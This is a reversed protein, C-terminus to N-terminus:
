QVCNPLNSLAIALQDLGQGGGKRKVRQNGTTGSLLPLCPWTRIGHCKGRWPGLCSTGYLVMICISCKEEEEEEEAQPLPTPPKMTTNPAEQPESQRGIVQKVALSAMQPYVYAAMTLPITFVCFCCCIM